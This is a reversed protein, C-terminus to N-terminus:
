NSVVCNEGVTFSCSSNVGNSSYNGPPIKTSFGGHTSYTAYLEGNICFAVESFVTPYVTTAPCLQVVTVPNADVGDRGNLGNTGNVGNAGDKGCGTFTMAIGIIAASYKNM